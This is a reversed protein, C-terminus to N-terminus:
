GGKTAVARQGGTKVQRELVKQLDARGRLGPDRRSVGASSVKELKESQWSSTVVRRRTLLAPGHVHEEGATEGGGGGCVAQPGQTPRRAAGQQDQTWNGWRGATGGPGAGTGRGLAERQHWSPAQRPLGPSGLGRGVGTGGERSWKVQGREQKQTTKAM